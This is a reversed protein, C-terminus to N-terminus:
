AEEAGGFRATWEAIQDEDIKKFLVEPATV